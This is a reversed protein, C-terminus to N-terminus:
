NFNFLSSFNAIAKELAEQDMESIDLYEVEGYRAHYFAIRNIQQEAMSVGIMGSYKSVEHLLFYGILQAAEQWKYGLSKSTKFDYLTGDIYIDADAGGLPAAYFSFTPNYIVQSNTEVLGANVFADNFTDCIRRLDLLIEENDKNLLTNIDAPPMGGTRAIQEFRAWSCVAELSDGFDDSGSQLYSDIQKTCARFRATLQDFTKKDYSRKLLLLGKYAATNKYYEGLVNHQKKAIIFRAMYDFATGVISAYYSQSLEYPAKISYDPSFAPKGSLTKFQSKTPLISKLIDILESSLPGNGQIMSKLSM